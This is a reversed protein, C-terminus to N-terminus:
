RQPLPNGAVESRGFCFSVHVIDTSQQARAIGDFRFEGHTRELIPQDLPNPLGQCRRARVVPDLAPEGHLDSRRAREFVREAEDAQQRRAIRQRFEGGLQRRADAIEGVILETRDLVQEIRHGALALDEGEPKDQDHPPEGRRPLQDPDSRPCGFAIDSRADGVRGIRDRHGYHQLFDFSQDTLETLVEFASQCQFLRQQELIDM